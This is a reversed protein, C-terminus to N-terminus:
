PGLCGPPVRRSAFPRLSIGLAFVAEEKAMCGPVAAKGREAGDTSALVFGVFAGRRIALRWLTAVASIAMSGGIPATCKILSFQLGGAVTQVVEGTAVVAFLLEKDLTTHMTEDVDDLM